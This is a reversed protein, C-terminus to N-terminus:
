KQSAISDRFIYLTKNIIYKTNDYIVMNIYKSIITFFGEIESISAYHKSPLPSTEFHIIM